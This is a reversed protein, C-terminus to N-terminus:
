HRPSPLRVPVVEEVGSGVRRLADLFLHIVINRAKRLAGRSRSDIM